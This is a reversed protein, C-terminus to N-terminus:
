ADDATLYEGGILDAVGIADADSCLHTCAKPAAHVPAIHVSEYADHVTAGLDPVTHTTFVKGCRRCKYQLKGSQEKM